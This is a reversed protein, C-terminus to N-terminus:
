NDLDFGFREVRRRNIRSEDAIRRLAKLAEGVFASRVDNGESLGKFQAITRLARRVDDGRLTKFVDFYEESSLKSLLIEDEQTWSQEKGIRVLIESPERDDPFSVFKADFANIVDQDTIGLQM